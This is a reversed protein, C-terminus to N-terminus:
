LDVICVGYMLILVDRKWHMKGQVFFFQRWQWEKKSKDKYLYYAVALVAVTAAGIMLAKKTPPTLLPASSSISVMMSSQQLTKYLRQKWDIQRNLHTLRFLKILSQLYDLLMLSTCETSLAQKQSRMLISYTFLSFNLWWGPVGLVANNIIFNSIM